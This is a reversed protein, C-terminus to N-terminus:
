TRLPVCACFSMLKYPGEKLQLSRIDTWIFRFHNKSPRDSRTHGEICWSLRLIPNRKIVREHLSKIINKKKEMRWNFNLRKRLYLYELWVEWKEVHIDKYYFLFVYLFFFCNPQVSVRCCGLHSKRFKENNLGLFVITHHMAPASLPQM